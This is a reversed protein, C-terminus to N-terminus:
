GSSLGTMRPDYRKDPAVGFERDPSRIMGAILAASRRAGGTDITITAPHASIARDIASALREPSLEDECVLEFAGCAALREARLRQETERGSAFPVVVAAARAALLDLVTNYGAQSVSVRCRRLMQPFDPRYRELFVDEPLRNALAAFEPEALNPGALLRWRFNALCGQRQTEIATRLLAGGVAGGGASVLVEDAGATEDSRAAHDAGDPEAIYGTYILRDSVESALPFSDKLPIFAPDGHVLVFDFDARVRDVIEAPRRPDDHMVVIDRLSCLVLSRPRRSRAAEILGDLEFRFARRGFPFAEIVLADPQQDGFAALLASRRVARLADDIPRGMEDVLAKFGGDLARIPPLQITREASTSALASFPEGGSILTVKVGERVLADVIRLSRRLHGIGLLHQVYFLVSGTM